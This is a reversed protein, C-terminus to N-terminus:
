EWSATRACSRARRRRLPRRLGCRSRPRRATGGRRRARRPIACVQTVGIYNKGRGGPRPNPPHKVHFMVFSRFRRPRGRDNRSRLDSRDAGLAWPHKVHFLGLRRVRRRGGGGDEARPQLLGAPVGLHEGAGTDLAAEDPGAFDIPEPIPVQQIARRDASSTSSPSRTASTPLPAPSGPIGSASARGPRRTVSTSGSSRRASKRWLRHGFKPKDTATTRPRASSRATRSSSPSNSTTVDRATAANSLNASNTAATTARRPVFTPRHFAFAGLFFHRFM